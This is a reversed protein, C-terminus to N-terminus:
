FKKAWTFVAGGSYVQNEVVTSSLVKLKFVSAYEPVDVNVIGGLYLTECQRGDPPIPVGFFEDDAIQNTYFGALGVQFRGIHETIAFDLDLLDGTSYDTDPNKPYNNWFLKASFETGEALIPRTTYTLAATPAFAWINNGVTVGRSVAIEPDYTGVPIVVGAGAQVSLGELIPLAGPYRSPRLKGFSRSWGIEVYPDGIGRMCVSETGEYLHGCTQGIPLIAAIGVAGGLVKVDPVYVLFPASIAKELYANGLAPITDGRGDVFDYANAWFLVNGGYLGPPPLQASRIDTGGIPGAASPGEVALARSSVAALFALAFLCRLM